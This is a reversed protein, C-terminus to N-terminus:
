DKLVALINQIFDEQTYNAQMKQYTRINHKVELETLMYRGKEVDKRLESIESIHMGEAKLWKYTSSRKNLYIKCGYGIATFINGLAHQRYSNIVLASASKYIDEFENYPLFDEIFEVSSIKSGEKKIHEAYKGTNGYSFFFKFSIDKRKIKKLISLIDIHNNWAHGSNGIIISKKKILSLFEKETILPLRIFQPLSFYKKLETYEFINYGFIADFHFYMQYQQEKDFTFELDLYRKIRKKIYKKLGLSSFTIPKSFELTRRSIFKNRKLGYLEYGFLRLFIKKNPPIARVLQKKFSCLDYMIVVDFSKMRELIADRGFKNEPFIMYHLNHKELRSIVGESEEGVFAIYNEFFAYQYIITGAIFKPDSHIHLLKFKDRM